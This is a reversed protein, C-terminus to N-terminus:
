SVRGPEVLRRFGYAGPIIFRRNAPTVLQLRSNRLQHLRYNRFILGGFIFSNSVVLKGPALNTLLLKKLAEMRWPVLFFYVVDADRFDARWLNRWYVKIQRRYPSFYVRIKTFLVLFPNIEFGVATAGLGAALFLLKGDGSGLDYIKMGPAIGSLRIMALATKHATPVFPAGTFFALVLFLILLAFLLHLLSFLILM